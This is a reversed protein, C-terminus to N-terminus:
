GLASDFEKAVVDIPHGYIETIQTLITFLERPCKRTLHYVTLRFIRFNLYHLIKLELKEMTKITNVNIDPFLKKVGPSMEDLYYKFAIYICTRALDLHSYELGCVRQYLDLGLFFIKYYEKHKEGIVDLLRRFVEIGEEKMEPRELVHYEPVIPKQIEINWQLPDNANVGAFFPHALVQEASYREDMDFKLMHELLDHFQELTGPNRVNGVVDEDFDPCQLLSRLSTCKDIKFTYFCRDSRYITVGDATLNCNESLKVLVEQSPIGLIKFMNGLWDLDKNGAFLDRKMVMEFFTCAMAWIDVKEGYHKNELLIEPARYNKTVVHLSNEDGADLFRSFGFDTLKTTLIGKHYFCLVNDPKIDRHAINNKHLYYVASAIQYMARKLHSIPTNYEYILDYLSCRARPMVIFIKDTRYGRTISCRDKFPSKTFIQIAKNIFPHNCRVLADFEKLNVIGHVKTNSKVLLRKIAVENGEKDKALYVKGFGGEGLISVKEYMKQRCRTM